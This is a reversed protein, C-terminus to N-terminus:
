WAWFRRVEECIRKPLSEPVSPWGQLVAEYWATLEPQRRDYGGGVGAM